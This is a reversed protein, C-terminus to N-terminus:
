WVKKCKRCYPRTLEEETKVKWYVTNSPNMARVAETKDIAFQLALGLGDNFGVIFAKVHEVQKADFSGYGLLDILLIGGQFALQAESTKLEKIPLNQLVAVLTVYDWQSQDVLAQFALKTQAFAPKDEPHEALYASVSVYTTLKTLKEVRQPTLWTENNTTQCGSLFLASVLSITSLLKNM